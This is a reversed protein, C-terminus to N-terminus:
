SGMDVFTVGSSIVIRRFRCGGCRSSALGEFMDVGVVMAAVAEGLVAEVLVVEVRTEGGIRGSGSTSRVVMEVLESAVTM